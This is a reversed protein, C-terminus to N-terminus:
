SARLIGWSSIRLRSLHYPWFAFLSEPVTSFSVPGITQVNTPWPDLLTLLQAQTPANTWFMDSSHLGTHPVQVTVIRSGGNPRTMRFGLMGCYYGAPAPNGPDAAQYFHPQIGDRSWGLGRGSDEMVFATPQTPDADRSNKIRWYYTGSSIGLDSSLIMSDGSLNAMVNSWGIFQNTGPGPLNPGSDKVGIWMWNAPYFSPTTTITEPPINPKDENGTGTQTVSLFMGIRIDTWNPANFPQTASERVGLILIQDTSATREWIQAM